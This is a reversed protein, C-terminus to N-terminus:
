LCAREFEAMLDKFLAGPTANRPQSTLGDLMQVPKAVNRFTLERMAEAQSRLLLLQREGARITTLAGDSAHVTHKAAYYYSYTSGLVAIQAATPAPALAIKVVGGEEVMSFEPLRGPWGADWPMVAVKPALGWLSSKFYHFDAPLDPYVAQDAVVTFSGVMTRPRRYGFALAAQAIFRKFDADAAADFVAAADQLSSKLDAVLDTESMTGPM